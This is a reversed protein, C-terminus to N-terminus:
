DWLPKAPIRGQPVIGHHDHLGQALPHGALHAAPRQRVRTARRRDRGVAPDVSACCTSERRERFWAHGSWRSQLRDPVLEFGWCSCLVPRAMDGMNLALVRAWLGM